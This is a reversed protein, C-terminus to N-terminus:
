HLILITFGNALGLSSKLFEARSISNVNAVAMSVISDKGTSLPLGGAIVFTLAEGVGSYIRMMLRTSDFSAHPGKLILSAAHEDM